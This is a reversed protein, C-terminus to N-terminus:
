ALVELARAPADAPVDQISYMRNGIQYGLEIPILPIENYNIGGKSQPVPGDFATGPPAKPALFLARDDQRRVLQFGSPLLMNAANM